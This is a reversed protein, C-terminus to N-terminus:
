SNILVENTKFNIYLEKNELLATGLLFDSGENVYVAIKSLKEGFWIIEAEAVGFVESHTGVGYITAQSSVQLGLQHLYETPVCLSGSFGTDILFEAKVGSSFEVEILSELNENVKGTETQM